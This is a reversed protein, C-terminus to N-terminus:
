RRASTLTIAARVTGAREHRAIVGIMAGEDARVVWEVKVRDDTVNYDPWFSVGTHKYAKGELQGIDDRAKGSALTAGAPLDIEAIVGRVTKRALARKSVYSPLWGTNQVVLTVKWAGAGVSEVGAHLLELKPSCLAQWLLWRPFRALEHPLLTPLADQFPFRGERM